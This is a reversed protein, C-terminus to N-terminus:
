RADGEKENTEQSDPDANWGSSDRLAWLEASRGALTASVSEEFDKEISRRRFSLV